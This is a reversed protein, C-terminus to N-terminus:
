VPIFIFLTADFKDRRWIIKTPAEMLSTRPQFYNWFVSCFHAVFFHWPAPCDSKKCHDWFHSSPLLSDSVLPFFAAWVTLSVYVIIDASALSDINGLDPSTSQGRWKLLMASDETNQRLHPSNTIHTASGGQERLTRLTVCTLALRGFFPEMRTSTQCLLAGDSEVWGDQRDLHSSQWWWFLTGRESLSSSSLRVSQRLDPCELYLWTLSDFM